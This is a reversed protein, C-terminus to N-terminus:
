LQNAGGFIESVSSEEFVARLASAVLPAISLVRLNGFQRDDPIPVTNTVIVQELPSEELNQRAKGSFIPHTAAAYISGAGRTALAQVGKALTAGTDIMDEILVCAKGEVEGVVTMEEIKHADTRSRRKYM